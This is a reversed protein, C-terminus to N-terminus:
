SEQIECISEGHGIEKAIIGLLMAAGITGLSHCDADDLIGIGRLILLWLVIM